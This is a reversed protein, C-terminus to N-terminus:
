NSENIELIKVGADHLIGVAENLSDNIIISYGCGASGKGSTIREIKAKIGKRRLTDRGKIAYTVTGTTIIYKKM